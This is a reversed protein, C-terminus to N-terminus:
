SAILDQHISVFMPSIVMLTRGNGALLLALIGQVHKERGCRRSPLATTEKTLVKMRYGCFICDMHIYTEHLETDHVVASRMPFDDVDCSLDACWYWGSHHVHLVPASVRCAPTHFPCEQCAQLFQWISM